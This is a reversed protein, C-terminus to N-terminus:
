DSHHHEGEVQHPRGEWGGAQVGARQGGATRCLVSRSRCAEAEFTSLDSHILLIGPKNWELCSGYSFFGKMEGPCCYSPSYLEPLESLLCNQQGTKGDQPWFFTVRTYIDM